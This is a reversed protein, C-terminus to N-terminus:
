KTAKTITGFFGSSNEIQDNFVLRFHGLVTNKRDLVSCVFEYWRIKNATSEISYFAWSPYEKELLNLVEGGYLSLGILRINRGVVLSPLKQLILNQNILDNTKSSKIDEKRLQVKLLISPKGTDFLNTQIQTGQTATALNRILPANGAGILVIQQLIEDLLGQKAFDTLGFSPYRFAIKSNQVVYLGDVSLQSVFGGSSDEFVLSEEDDFFVILPKFFDTIKRRWNTDEPIGIRLKPYIVVKLNKVMSLMKITETLESRQGAKMESELDSLSVLFYVGSQTVRSPKGNGDFFTYKFDNGEILKTRSDSLAYLKNRTNSQALALCFLLSICTLISVAKM